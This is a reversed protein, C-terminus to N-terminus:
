CKTNVNSMNTLLLISDLELSIIIIIIIVHQIHLFFAGLLWVYNMKCIQLDFKTTVKIKLVESGMM